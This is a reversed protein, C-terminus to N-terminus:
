KGRRGSRGSRRLPISLRAAVERTVRLKGAGDFIPEQVEGTIRSNAIVLRNARFQHFGCQGKVQGAFYDFGGSLLMTHAGNARMTQVLTRTSSTLM